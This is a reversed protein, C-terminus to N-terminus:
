NMMLGMQVVSIISLICCYLNNYSIGSYIIQGLPFSDNDDDDDDDDGDNNRSDQITMLMFTIMTGSDQM